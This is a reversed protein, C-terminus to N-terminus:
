IGLSVMVMSRLLSEEYVRAVTCCSLLSLRSDEERREAGEEDDDYPVVGM